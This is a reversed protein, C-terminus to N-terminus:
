PQSILGFDPEMSILSDAKRGEGETGEGPETEREFLYIFLDKRLFFFSSNM